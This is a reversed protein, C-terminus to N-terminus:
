NRALAYAYTTPKTQLRSTHQLCSTLTEIECQHKETERRRGRERLHSYFIFRLFLYFVDPNLYM